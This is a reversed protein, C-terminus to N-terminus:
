AGSKVCDPKCHRAWPGTKPRKREPYHSQLLVEMVQRPVYWGMQALGADFQQRIDAIHDEVALKEHWRSM